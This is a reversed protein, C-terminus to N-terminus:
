KLLKVYFVILQERLTLVSVYPIIFELNDSNDSKTRETGYLRITGHYLFGWDHENVGYM